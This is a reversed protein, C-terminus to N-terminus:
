AEHSTTSDLGSTPEDAFLLLPQAVLEMGQAPRDHCMIGQTRRPPQVRRPHSSWFNCGSLNLLCTRVSITKPEPLQTFFLIYYEYLIWGTTPIM